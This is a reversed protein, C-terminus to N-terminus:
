VSQTLTNALHHKAKTLAASVSSQDIGLLQAIEKNSLEAQYRLILIEQQREPLQAIAQMAQDYSDKQDIREALDTHDPIVTTEIDVIDFQRKRFHDILSNRVITFLWSKESAGIRWHYSDAAAVAKMFIDSVLDETDSVSRLRFYVYNYVSTFYQTYLQACDVAM